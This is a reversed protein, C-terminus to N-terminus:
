HTAPDASLYQGDGRGAPAGDLTGANYSAGSAQAERFSEVPKIIM